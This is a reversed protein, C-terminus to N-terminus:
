TRCGWIKAPSFLAKTEDDKDALDVTYMDEYCKFWSESTVGNLFDTM